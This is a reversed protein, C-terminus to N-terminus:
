ADRTMMRWAGIITWSALWAIVVCVAWVVPESVLSPAGPGGGGGTVGPLASELEIWLGAEIM